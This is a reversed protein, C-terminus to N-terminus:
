ASVACCSAYDCQSFDAPSANHGAIDALFTRIVGAHTVVVACGAQMQDAISDMADRIRKRFDEFPRAEPLLSPRITTWGGNRM